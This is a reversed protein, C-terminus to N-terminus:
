SSWASEPPSALTSEEWFVQPTGEGMDGEPSRPFGEPRTPRVGRGHARRHCRGNRHLYPPPPPPPSAPLRPDGSSPSHQASFDPPPLNSEISSIAEPKGGVLRSPPCRCRLSRNMYIYRM